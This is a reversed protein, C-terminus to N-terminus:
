LVRKIEQVEFVEIQDGPQIDNYGKVALGCEIGARVENVDDKHRRLSELGGQFVVIGDRLVRIPKNRYLHGEKVMCGAAAGFKSSRFVDRVEALGLMKERHEPALMGSMAAKVDDIMQYLVSYYRIDVGEAEAKTRGPTDARVNFGLLAADSQLALTVDSETIAGVGSSIIRVSVDDVSLDYLAGSLAELSGKVDTKLVINVTPVDKKAMSAMLNELRRSNAKELKQAREKDARFQAVERAKKEDSVVLFDDGANPTDPLGLIEVPISPTATKIAKGLENTMARVRGYFEGALVLDGVSLTGKQVLLSVVSGRGKEVRSEIVVGQASGEIPARLELMEAQISILDLLEDIGAGTKASIKAVPTDGGWLETTVEQVALDNLVKDIDASEKDVKNIAIIIPSKAARAHKIAEATQPMVGDDAAVIIVVIDTCQAGRERMKSFAAHGPTDLFTIVGKPTQVHYAGIHQTIGGAEGAAVKAKRIYDLLSTKGHDVHGMITVVPPRTTYEGRSTAADAKLTDEAANDSVTVYQHGMEEVVLCATAQDIAQNQTVVEGMKMLIKVVEKAKTAMQQALDAVVITEGINVTYTQKDLPKSFAHSNISSKLIKNAQKFNREEMFGEHKHRSAGKGIKSTSAPNHGRKIEQEEKEFSEEYAKGVLGDALQTEETTAPEDAKNGSYKTAMQRMQEKIRAEAEAAATKRAAEEAAKLRALEKERALREEETETKVPRKKNDKKSDVKDVKDTKAVAIPASSTTKGAAKAQEALKQAPTQAAAKNLAALASAAAQQERALKAAEEREKAELALTALDKKVFTQKKKVEVNITRSRGTSSALHATQLTKKQLTIKKSLTEGHEKKLFSVLREQEAMSISDNVTRAPMGAALMQELLQSPTKGVETALQQITKDAM